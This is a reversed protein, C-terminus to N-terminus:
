ICFRVGTLLALYLYTIYTTLSLVWFSPPWGLFTLIFFTFAHRRLVNTFIAFWGFSLLYIHYRDSAYSVRYICRAQDSARWFFFPFMCVPLYAWLVGSFLCCKIRRGKTKRSNYSPTRFENCSWAIADKHQLHMPIKVRRWRAGFLHYRFYSFYANLFALSSEYALLYVLHDM